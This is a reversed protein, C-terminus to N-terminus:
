CTSYKRIRSIHHYFAIMARIVSKHPISLPQLNVAARIATTLSPHTRRDFLTANFRLLDIDTERLSIFLTWTNIGQLVLAEIIPHPDYGPDGMPIFAASPIEAWRNFAMGLKRQDDLFARAAAAAAATAAPASTAM